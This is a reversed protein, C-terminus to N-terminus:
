ESVELYDDVLKAVYYALKQKTIPNYTKKHNKTVIQKDYETWSRFL